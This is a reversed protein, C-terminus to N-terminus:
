EGGQLHAELFWLSKDLDRSVEVILDMTDQDKAEEAQDIAERLSQCITAYREVLMRVSEMSGVPGLEFEELKSSESAMRVTGHAVGGMATVREAMLDVFGLVKEALEDYLLHLQYFQPGKVNWHAQKTQSFLDFLGAIQENLLQSMQKRTQEPLDNSSSIMQKGDRSIEQKRTRTAM